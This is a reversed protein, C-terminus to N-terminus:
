KELLDVKAEVEDTELRLAPRFLGGALVAFGRLRFTVSEQGRPVLLTQVLVQDGVLPDADKNFQWQVTSAAHGVAQIVPTKLSLTLKGLVKAETSLHLDAGAGLKLVNGPVLGGVKDPLEAHGDALVGGGFEVKASVRLFEKFATNPFLEVTSGRDAFSAQYGLIRVDNARAEAILGVAHVVLYVEGNLSAYEPPLQRDNLAYLRAMNRVLPRNGVQLRVPPQAPVGAESTAFVTREPGALLWPQTFHVNREKLELDVPSPATM